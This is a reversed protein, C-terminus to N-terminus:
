SLLKQTLKWMGDCSSNEKWWIYCAASMKGWTEENTEISLRRAEEPTDAIFYHENIVPPNAYYKMDVDSMVIPVCGMAMCEVERHCKLGYGPLCLGFKAKKLKELYEKQSFPYAKDSGVPMVFESCAAAWNLPRRKKQTANEVKGYFVLNNSRESFPVSTLALEEVLSPRRPWFSWSKGIGPPPAPNGFLGHKYRKEDPPAAELWEYTPRDYLLTHGIGHLWVHHAHKDEAIRVYGKQAWLMAMERFSDGAHGFFGETPQKPLILLPLSTDVKALPKM